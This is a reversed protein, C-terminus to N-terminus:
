LPTTVGSPPCIAAEEEMEAVMTGTLLTQNVISDAMTALTDPTTAVGDVAVQLPGM